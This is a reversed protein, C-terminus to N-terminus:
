SRTASTAQSHVMGGDGLASDIVEDLTLRRDDAAFYEPVQDTRSTSRRVISSSAETIQHRPVSDAADAGFPVGALSLTALDLDPRTSDPRVLVGRDDLIEIM